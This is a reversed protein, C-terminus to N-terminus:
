NEPTQMIELAEVLAISAHIQPNLFTGTCLVVGSGATTCVKMFIASCWRFPDNLQKSPAM